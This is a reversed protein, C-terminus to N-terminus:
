TGVLRPSPSLRHRDARSAGPRTSCSRARAVCMHYLGSNKMGANSDLLNHTSGTASLLAATMQVHGTTGFYWQMRRFCVSTLSSMRALSLPRLRVYNATESWTGDSSPSQACNAAANAVAYELVRASIDTPDENAIALAGMILGNNCVQLPPFDDIITM